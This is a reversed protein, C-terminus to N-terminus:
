KIYMKSYVYYGADYIVDYGNDHLNDVDSKSEDYTQFSEKIHVYESQSHMVSRKEDKAVYWQMPSTVGDFSFGLQEYINGNEWRRDVFTMVFGGPNCTNEFCEYLKRPGNNVHVDPVEYYTQLTWENSHPMKAFSMLAVLKNGDNTFLAFNKSSYWIDFMSNFQLIDFTEDESLEKIFCDNDADFVRAYMGIHRRIYSKVVNKKNEWESEFVHILQIGLMECQDTKNAHYNPDSNHADSHWYVGNFEIALRHDPLYIDLELPSIMSRDNEIVKVGLSKVYDALEKQGKSKCTSVPWCIPCRNHVGNRHASEFEFGCTKCKFRFLDFPSIRAQYEELTFMPEDYPCKCIFEEYSKRTRLEASIKAPIGTELYNQVGYKAIFTDKAKDRVEKAQMSWPVGYHAMCTANIKEIAEKSGGGNKVGYKKMCTDESKKRVIPSQMSYEVGYHKFTTDRIKAQVSPAAFSCTVGYTNLCTQKMKNKITENKAPSTVGFRKLCTNRINGVRIPSKNACENSCYKGYCGHKWDLRMIPVLKGCELCHPREKIGHQIWYVKIRQPTEPPFDYYNNIYDVVFKYEPHKLINNYTCKNTKLLQMLVEHPDSLITTINDSM